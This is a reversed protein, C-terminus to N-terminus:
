RGNLTLQVINVRPIGLVDTGYLAVKRDPLAQFVFGNITHRTVVRALAPDIVEVYTTFLRDFAVDPTRYEHGQFPKVGTWAEKWTSAPHYIFYWVLGEADETIHATMPTPPTTQNGPSAKTEGTYWELRRSFTEKVVGNRSWRAFQPRNWYSSWIGDRARGIIQNVEVNGMSGGTGVPGFSGLVRMDIGFLSLRHMTSNPPNAGHMYGQSILLAPWALVHIDGIGQLIRLTRTPKLDPGLMTARSEVWDIVLMSDGIVLGRNASQFEGPGRGKRGVMRDVTGNANFLTPPELEQFLWYRGRSDISVSMPKGAIAGLGDETGLMVISRTTITCRPCLPEDPIAKPTATQATATQAAITLALCLRSFM